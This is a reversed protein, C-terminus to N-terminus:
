ICIKNKYTNGLRAGPALSEWEHQDILKDIPSLWGAAAYKPLWTVDIMLIDFPSKGLLLSSIALDSVSESERPGRTVKVAINGSNHSNFRAILDSTSDAFPAPM